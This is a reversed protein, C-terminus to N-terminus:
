AGKTVQWLIHRISTPVTCSRRKAHVLLSRLMLYATRNYTSQSGNSSIVPFKPLASSYRTVTAWISVSKSGQRSKADVRRGAGATRGLFDEGREM